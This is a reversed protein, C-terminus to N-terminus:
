VSKGREGKGSIHEFHDVNTSDLFIPLASIIRETICQEPSIPTKQQGVHLAFAIVKEAVLNNFYGTIATNEQVSNYQSHSTCKSQDHITVMTWVGALRIHLSHFAAVSFIVTKRELSAILGFALPVPLPAFPM